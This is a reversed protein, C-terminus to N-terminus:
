ASIMLVGNIFM